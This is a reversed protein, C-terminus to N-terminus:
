RADDESSRVSWPLWRDGGRAALRERGMRRRARDDPGLASSWGSSRATGDVGEITFAIGRQVSEQLRGDVVALVLEELDDAAREWPEDCAECGCVPQHGGHAAGARVLIGPYDSWAIAIPAADRAAPEIRVARLVAPGREGFWARADDLADLVSAEYTSVLHAVLADAIAHLPAFREPHADVSYAEEPPPGMGWREGFRIPQGDADVIRPAAVAPRAYPM